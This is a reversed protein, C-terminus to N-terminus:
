AAGELRKYIWFMKLLRARRKSPGKADYFRRRQWGAPDYVKELDDLCRLKKYTEKSNKPLEHLKWWELMMDYKLRGRPM